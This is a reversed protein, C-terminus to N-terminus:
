RLTWYTEGGPPCVVHEYSPRSLFVSIVRMIFTVAFCPPFRVVFQRSYIRLVSLALNGWRRLFGHSGQVWGVGLM